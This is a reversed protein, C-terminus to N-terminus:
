KEAKMAHDYENKQERAEITDLEYGTRAFGDTLPAHVQPATEGAMLKQEGPLAAPAPSGGIGRQVILQMARAVPIRIAGAPLDASASYYDLLLDERAHLDAIDQNGDDSELRPTPFSQAVASAQRQQMEANSMLDERKDGHPTAGVESLGPQWKTAPGDQKVLWYNISKGMFFCFVFFIIVFGFLGALFTTVGGVNVDQIEYGPHNDDFKVAPHAVVGEPKGADHGEHGRTHASHDDGSRGVDRPLPRGSNQQGDDIPM